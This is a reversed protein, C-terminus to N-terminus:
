ATFAFGAAGMRSRRAPSPEKKLTNGYSVAEPDAGAALCMSVEPFSAADFYSGLGVLRELIPAAPNAKVAYYIRALPLASRLRRFNDEVRDVDLVLCPTAPQMDALYRAVKPTM